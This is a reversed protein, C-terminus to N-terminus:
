CKLCVHHNREVAKRYLLEQCSSCKIWLSENKKVQKIEKQIDIEKHPKIEKDKKKFISM